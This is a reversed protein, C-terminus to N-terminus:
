NLHKPYQDLVRVLIMSLIRKNTEKTQNFYFLLDNTDFFSIIVGILNNRLIQNGTIIDKIMKRQKTGSLSQFTPNMQQCFYITLQCLLADQYKLIPRLVSNQFLESESMSANKEFPITPLLNKLSNRTM